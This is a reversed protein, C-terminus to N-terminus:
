RSRHSLRHYTLAQVLHEESVLLEGLEDELTRVFGQRVVVTMGDQLASGSSSAQAPIATTAAVPSPTGGYADPTGTAASPTYPYGQPQTQHTPTHPTFAQGYAQHEPYPQYFPQQPQQQYESQYSQQEHQQQGYGSGAGVGALMPEQYMQKEGMTWPGGDQDKDEVERFPVQGAEVEREGRTAAVGTGYGGSSSFYSTRDTWAQLGGTM